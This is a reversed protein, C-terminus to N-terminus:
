KIVRTYNVETNKREQDGGSSRYVEVMYHDNSIIKVLLRLKRKERPTTEIGEYTITKTASDYSGETTLIGSDWHNDIFANVFKKKVNDYSEITLDKYTVEKGDSWPMIIKKGSTTESIFYRGDMIAKREFTGSFEIPKMNPDPPFHKGTFAWTGAIASLLKHNEGTKTLEIMQKQVEDKSASTGSATVSSDKQNQAFSSMGTTATFVLVAFAKSAIVLKKM